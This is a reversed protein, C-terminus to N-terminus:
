SFLSEISSNSISKITAGINDTGSNIDKGNYLLNGNESETLKDLVTKNDHEHKKDNADEYKIYDEKSLFGDTSNSVRTNLLEDQSKDKQDLRSLASDILDANGNFVNINYKETEEPKILKLFNTYLSM